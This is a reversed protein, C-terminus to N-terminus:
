PTGAMTLAQQHDVAAEAQHQNVTEALGADPVAQGLPVKQEGPAPGSPLGNKGMNDALEKTGDGIRQKWDSDMVELDNLPVEVVAGKACDAARSATVQMTVTGPPAKLDSTRTIYDDTALGCTKGAAQVTLPAIVRFLVHGPKLGDAMEFAALVLVGSGFVAQGREFAHVDLAVLLDGSAVETDSLEALKGIVEVANGLAADLDDVTSPLLPACWDSSLFAACWKTQLSEPQVPAIARNSKRFRM